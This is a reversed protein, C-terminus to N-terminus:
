RTGFYISGRKRVWPFRAKQEPFGFLKQLSGRCHFAGDQVPPQYCQGLVVDRSHRVLPQALIADSGHSVQPHISGTRM